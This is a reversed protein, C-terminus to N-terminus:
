YNRKACLVNKDKEREDGVGSDAIPCLDKVLGVGQRADPGRQKQLVARLRGNRMQIKGLGEDGIVLLGKMLIRLIQCHGKMM